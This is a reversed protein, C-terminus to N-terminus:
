GDQKIMSRRKKRLLQSLKKIGASITCIKLEIASSMIGIAISLFSVFGAISIYGTVASVIIIFYDIYSVTTRVNRSQKKLLIIELKVSM